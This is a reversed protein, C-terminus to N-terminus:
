DLLASAQDTVPDPDGIPQTVGEFPVIRLGKLPKITYICRKKTVENGTPWRQELHFPRASRCQLGEEMLMTHTEAVNKM